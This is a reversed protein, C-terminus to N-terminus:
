DHCNGRQSRVLLCDKHAALPLDLYPILRLLSGTLDRCVMYLIARDTM